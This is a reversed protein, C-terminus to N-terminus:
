TLRPLEEPRYRFQALNKRLVFKFVFFKKVSLQLYHQKLEFNIWTLLLTLWTNVM